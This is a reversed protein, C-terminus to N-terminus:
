DNPSTEKAAALAASIARRSQDEYSETGILRFSMEVRLADVMEETINAPDSLVALAAGWAAKVIRDHDAGEGGGQADIDANWALMFADHLKEILTM